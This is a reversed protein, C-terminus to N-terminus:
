GAREEKEWFGGGKGDRSSCLYDRLGEMFFAIGLPIGWEWDLMHGIGAATAGIALNIRRSVRMLRDIATQFEENARMLLLNIWSDVALFIGVVSVAGVNKEDVFGSAVVTGTMFLLTTTIERGGKTNRELADAAKNVAQHLRGDAREAADKFRAFRPKTHEHGPDPQCFRNRM